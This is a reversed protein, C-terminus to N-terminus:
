AGGQGDTTQINSGYTVRPKGSYPVVVNHPIGSASEDVYRRLVIIADGAGYAQDAGPPPAVAQNTTGDLTRGDPTFCLLTLTNPSVQDIRVVVDSDQDTGYIDALDYTRIPQANVDISGCAPGTGRFVRLRGDSTGSGPIIQVGHANFDNVARNRTFEVLHTVETTAEELARTRETGLVNPLAMGILVLLIAMTMMLEILTFGHEGRSAIPETRAM